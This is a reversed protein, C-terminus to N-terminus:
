QRERPVGREGRPPAAFARPTSADLEQAEAAVVRRGLLLLVGGILGDGVRQCALRHNDTQEVNAAVLGRGIDRHRRLLIRREALAADADREGMRRKEFGLEARDQADPGDALAPDHDSRFLTTYPFLTETRTYRPTRRNM